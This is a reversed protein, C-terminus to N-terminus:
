FSVSQYVLFVFISGRGVVDVRLRFGRQAPRNRVFSSDFTLIMMGGSDKSSFWEQGTIEGCKRTYDLLIVHVCSIIKKFNSLLAIIQIDKQM